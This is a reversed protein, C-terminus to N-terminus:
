DLVKGPNMIGDPDFVKRLQQQLETQDQGLEEPLFRKKLLGVGHEGTLTGGMELAVSFVEDAAEWVHAPVADLGTEGAVPEFVFVPHMNGDGAHAASPLVVGYKREIERMRTFAEAMRTRPVAIDEVLVSGGMREIAPFVARRMGILAETEASDRICM